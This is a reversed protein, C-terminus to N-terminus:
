ENISYGLIESEPCFVFEISGLFHRAKAWAQLGADGKVIVSHMGPILEVGNLIHGMILPVEIVDTRQSITTFGGNNRTEIQTFLPPQIAVMGKNSYYKKGM